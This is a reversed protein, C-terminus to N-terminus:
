FKPKHNQAYEDITMGQVELQEKPKEGGTDRLFEASKVDGSIARQVQALIIAENATMNIEKAKELDKIEDASLLEGKTLTMTGLWKVIEQLSRNRDRKDRLAKQAKEQCMRAFEPNDFTHGNKKAMERYELMKERTQM